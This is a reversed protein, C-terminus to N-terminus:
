YFKKERIFVFKKLSNKCAIEKIFPNEFNLKLSNNKEVLYYYYSLWQHNPSNFKYKQDKIFRKKQQMITYSSLM